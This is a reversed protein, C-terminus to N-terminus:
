SELRRAIRVVADNLSLEGNSVQMCLGDFAPDGGKAIVSRVHAGAAYALYRRARDRARRAPDCECRRQHAAEVARVLDEVGEGQVAVASLVPTERAEGARLTVSAKLQRLTERAGPLDFKNVVLIDAIELIGAKIAQIDGLGPAVLVIRVEAIDAIDVEAQGAGVTELILVDRGCAELVDLVSLITTTLGGAHGRTALSRVFVGPDAAHEGMRVRDGLVAGGSLASSPDVAAVAVTRDGARLYRIFASILTSKGSGPAGTFGVCLPNKRLPRVANLLAAAGPAQNEVMTIARALAATDGNALRGALTEPDIGRNM